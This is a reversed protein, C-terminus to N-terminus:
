EEDDPVPPLIDDDDAADISAGASAKRCGAGTEPEQVGKLKLSCVVGKDTVYMVKGAATDGIKDYLRGASYSEGIVTKPSNAVYGVLGFGDIMVKIAERDYENDPEKELRVKMGKELFDHGYHFCTGTITFWIKM